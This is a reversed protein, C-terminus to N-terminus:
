GHFEVVLKRVSLRAKWWAGVDDLRQVFILLSRTVDAAVGSSPEMALQNKVNTRVIADVPKQFLVSKDSASNEGFLLPAHTGVPMEDRRRIVGRGM